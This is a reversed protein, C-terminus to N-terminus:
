GFRYNKPNTAVVLYQKLPEKADPDEEPCLALGLSHYFGLGEENNYDVTWRVHQAGADWAAELVARLLASGIGKRRHEELVEIDELYGIPEKALPGFGM